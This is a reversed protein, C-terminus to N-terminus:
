NMPDSWCSDSVIADDFATESPQYEMLSVGIRRNNHPGKFYWLTYSIKGSPPGGKMVALHVFAHQRRAADITFSFYRSEASDMSLTHTAIIDQNHAMMYFVESRNVESMVILPHPLRHCLKFM